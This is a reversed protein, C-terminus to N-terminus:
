LSCSQLASWVVVWGTAQLAQAGRAPPARTLLAAPFVVVVVPSDAFAIYLVILFYVVLQLNLNLAQVQCLEVTRDWSSCLLTGQSPEDATQAATARKQGVGICIARGGLKDPFVATVKPAM